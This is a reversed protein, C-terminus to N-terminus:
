KEDIIVSALRFRDEKEPGFLFRQGTSRQYVGLLLTYSVSNETPFVPLIHRQLVIDGSQLTIPAADFGDHQAVIQGREDVLHMFAALDAPLATEVRWLTFVVLPEDPKPPLIEYGMLSVLDGFTTRTLLQLRPPKEPLPYIAFSPDNESRFQPIEDIGALELLDPAVAAFEPVYFRGNGAAPWVVAGALGAGTQVWHAQPDRGLNRMLSDRDIPEFFSEAVVLNEASNAQWHRAIDLLVTQYHSLRTTEAQPWVVFGDRVTRYGNVGILTGLFILLLPRLASQRRVFRIPHRIFLFDYVATGALAPLLYVLPMAGVLRVTSPAQPTVASPILGVGLWILVFAYRPQRWRWLAILLGIYFFVATGWDFLPRNPLTYTWRPDGTFSFVGLTQITTQWIPRLDGAQLAELPVALQDVRQQLTPDARLTLFLPLAVLLSVGLVLLAEKALKLDEAAGRRQTLFSYIALLVPIAFVVRAGTYSYVSLGLFLGALWPRKPWFWAFLLLLVPELIPRIGVRSFVIPWWSIALGLGALVATGTAFERRAWRLTLAVLLLGLTVAPLRISLVNDGLLLQFPVSFYHYLPEHGYGERFFFANSGARISQVIDANLVEDQSLGPPVDVLLVLRFITALLLVATGWWVFRKKEAYDQTGAKAFTM